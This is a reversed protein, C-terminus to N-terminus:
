TLDIIEDHAFGFTKESSESKVRAVKGKLERLQAELRAIETAANGSDSGTEKSAIQPLADRPAIGTAVLVDIPRYKFIFTGLSRVVDYETSWGSEGETAFDEGLEVTHGMAAKKSKEHLVQPKYPHQKDGLAKRSTRASRRSSISCTIRIIRMEVKISGLEPSVNAELLADEDVTSKCRSAFPGSPVSDIVTSTTRSSKSVSTDLDSSNLVTGNVSLQGNVLARSSSRTNKLHVCFKKDSESPIWCTATHMGASISYEALAVGDVTIWAQLDNIRM